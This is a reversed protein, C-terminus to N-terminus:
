RVEPRPNAPARVDRLRKSWIQSNLKESAFNANSVRSLGLFRTYLIEAVNALVPLVSRPTEGAQRRTITM